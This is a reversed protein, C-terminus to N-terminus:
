KWSLSGNSANLEIPKSLTSVFGSCMARIEAAIAFPPLIIFGRSILSIRSALPRTTRVNSLSCYPIGMPGWDAASSRAIISDTM